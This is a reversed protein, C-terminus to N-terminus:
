PIWEQFSCSYALLIVLMIINAITFFFLYCGKDDPYERAIQKYSILSAMSAILTGLGGVNTGVILADWNSSFGSLLLAAPVNSIIQSSLVAVPIEHHSVIGQLFTQFATLRQMNGIFIFFGVFTGLLSFDVDLLLARDCILLFGLILIFLIRVDLVKAVSLLCLCFAISYLCLSRKPLRSTDSLELSSLAHKKITLGYLLLCVASIVTYPLMLCVFEAFSKGSKAYLYLNQPNGMPMLMSGLNAAITQMCIVPILLSHEGTMSLVIIALPVFTILSVDNTIFMSFFFPLLVLVMFLQRTNKVRSLLLAGTKQFLGLKKFGAMVAMLCFLLLITDWDVYSIYAQDPHVFLMSILALLLSVVLVTETKCFTILKKLM